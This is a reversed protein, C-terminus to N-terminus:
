RGTGRAEVIEPLERARRYIKESGILTDNHLARYMEEFMDKAKASFEGKQQETRAYWLMADDIRNQKHLCVAILYYGESYKEVKLAEQFSRIAAHFDNREMQIKGIGDYCVRRVKLIATSTEAGPDKVMDASKIAAEAYEIAKPFNKEEVYVQMLELRTRFDTQYEPFELATQMWELYKAKDNARKYAQAIELAWDGTERIKYIDILHQIVKEHHGLERAAKVAFGLGDLDGPHLELWEEALAELEQYKNANNCELLANRYSAEAHPLLDSEPYKGMFEALMAGRKLLDPEKDAKEWAEYQEIYEPSSEPEETQADVEPQQLAAGAHSVALGFCFVAAVAFVAILLTRSIPKM